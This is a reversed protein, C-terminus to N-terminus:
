QAFRKKSNLGSFEKTPETDCLTAQIDGIKQFAIELCDKPSTAVKAQSNKVAPV